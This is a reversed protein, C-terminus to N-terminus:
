ASLSSSPPSRASGASRGQGDIGIDEISCGLGQTNRLRGQATFHGAELFGGAIAPLARGTGGTIHGGPALPLATLRHRRHQVLQDLNGPVPPLGQQIQDRIGQEPLQFSSPEIALFRGCEHPNRQGSIPLHDVFRWLKGMIFSIASLVPSYNGSSKAM